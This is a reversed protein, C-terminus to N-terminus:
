KTWGRILDAVSSLLAVPATDRGADRAFREVTDRNNMQQVRARIEDTVIEISTHRWPDCGGFLDGNSARFWALRDVLYIRTATRRLVTELSYKGGFGSLVAVEDGPKLGALWATRDTTM